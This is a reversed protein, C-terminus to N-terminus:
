QKTEARKLLKIVHRETRGIEKALKRLNKCDPKRHSLYRILVGDMQNISPINIRMGDWVKLMGKVVEMGVMDAVEKMDENLDDYELHELIKEIEM